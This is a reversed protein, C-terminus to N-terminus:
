HLCLVLIQKRIQISLNVIPGSKPQNFAAFLIPTISSNQLKSIYELPM